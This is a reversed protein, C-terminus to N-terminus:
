IIMEGPCDIPKMCSQLRAACIRVSNGDQRINAHHKYNGKYTTYTQLNNKSITHHYLSQRVNLRQLAAINWIMLLTYFTFYSLLIGWVCYSQLYVKTSETLWLPGRYHLRNNSKILDLSRRSTSHQLILSQMAARRVVKETLRKIRFITWIKSLIRM